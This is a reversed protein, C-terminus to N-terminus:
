KTDYLRDGADGLGPLIYGRDNLCRDVCACYIQVDNHIKKINEIGEQSAIVCLFNIKKVGDKKLKNITEIASGGTALMPDLIFVETKEINNPVKYYYLEPKLTEENRCLGIHGIKATPMIKVIGDVMSLGARLIAVFTIKEKDIRNTKYVELPTNIVIEKMSINRTSEYCLLMSLESIIERFEKASTEVSRLISLKHTIMPHNLVIEKM